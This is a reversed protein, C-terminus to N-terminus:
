RYREKLNNERRLMDYFNEREQKQQLVCERLKILIESAVEAVQDIDPEHSHIRSLAKM